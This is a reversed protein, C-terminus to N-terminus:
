KSAEKEVIKVCRQCKRNYSSAQRVMGYGLHAGCKTKRPGAEAHAATGVNGQIWEIKKEETVEGCRPCIGTDAGDKFHSSHGFTRCYEAHGETVVAGDAAPFSMKYNVFM